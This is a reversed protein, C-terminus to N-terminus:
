GSVQRCGNRGRYHVATHSTRTNACSCHWAPIWHLSVPPSAHAHLGRAPAKGVVFLVPRGNRIDHRPEFTRPGGAIALRPGAVKGFVGIERGPKSEIHAAPFRNGVYMLLDEVGEVLAALQSKVHAIQSKKPRVHRHGVQLSRDDSGAFSDDACGCNTGTAMMVFSSPRQRTATNWLVFSM